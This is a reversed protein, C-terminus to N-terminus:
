IDVFFRFAVISQDRQGYGNDDGVHGVILIEGNALQISRPYSWVTPLWMPPKDKIKIDNWTQGEDSTWSVEPTAIHFVIGERTMLMEPHGSHAFPAKEIRTPEWTKGSAIMRTQLRPGISSQSNARIVILLDGNPLEAWDFEETLGLQKKNQDAPVLDIPGDWSRGDDDSVFLAQTIDLDWGSRHNHEPHLRILGGGILIRGDRLIRFRKPWFLFDKNPYIIEPLGWTCGGDTSRQIYGDYPAEDYPLYPGWVGRLITGDALAVESEGTIGNMCTKFHDGAVYKWTRALDYSRLHINQMDLGTMDYMEGTDGFEGQDGPPPWDLTKRVSEPAKPRGTFPGTAQTFCCMVSEDPMPYLGTWCTYGPYQPSHYVFERRFDRIKM